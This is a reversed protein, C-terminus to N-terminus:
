SLLGTAIIGLCVGLSIDGGFPHLVFYPFARGSDDYYVAVSRRRPRAQMEECSSAVLVGRNQSDRGDLLPCPECGLVALAHLRFIRVSIQRYPYAKFLM